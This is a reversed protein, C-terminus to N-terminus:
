GRFFVFRVIFFILGITLIATLFSLFNFGLIEFNLLGIFTQVPADVVAGLLGLFTYNNSDVLGQNYGSNYGVISGASYGDQYIIPQSESLGQSFGLDFGQQYYSNDSLITNDFYIYREPIYYPFVRKYLGRPGSFQIQFVKGNIDYFSLLVGPTGNGWMGDSSTDSSISSIRAYDIDSIFGPSVYIPCLLRYSNTLPYGSITGSLDAEGSGYSLSFDRWNRSDGDTGSGFPYANNIYQGDLNLFMPGIQSSLNLTTGDSFIRFRIGIFSIGDYSSVNNSGVPSFPLLFPSSEFYSINAQSDVPKLSMLQYSLDTHHKHFNFGCMFCGFCLLFILFTILLGNFLGRFFSLKNENM